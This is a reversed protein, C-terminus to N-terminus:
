AAFSVIANNARATDHFKRIMDLVWPVEGTRIYMLLCVDHNFLPVHVDLYHTGNEACAEVVPTSYLHYPGVTNIVLRTKQVLEQLDQKNLNVIEIDLNIDAGM